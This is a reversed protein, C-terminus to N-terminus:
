ENDGKQRRQIITIAESDLFEHLMEREFMLNFQLVRPIKSIYDILKNSEIGIKLIILM